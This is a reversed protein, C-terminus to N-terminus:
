RSCGRPLPVVTRRVPQPLLGQRSSSAISTRMCLWGPVFRLAKTVASIIRSCSSTAERIAAEIDQFSPFTPSWEFAPSNKGDVSTPGNTWAQAKRSCSIAVLVSASPSRRSMGAINNNMWCIRTESEGASASKSRLTANRAEPPCECRHLEPRPM